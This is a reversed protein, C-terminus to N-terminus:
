PPINTWTMHMLMMCCWAGEERWTRWTHYVVGISQWYFIQFIWILVLLNTHNMFIALLDTSYPLNLSETVRNTGKSHLSTAVMNAASRFARALCASFSFDGEGVLLIKQTSSYHQIKKEKKKGMTFRCFSISQSFLCFIFLRGWWGVIDESLQLLALDKEREEYGNYM